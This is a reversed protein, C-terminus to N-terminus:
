SIKWFLTSYKTCCIIMLYNLNKIGPQLEHNLNIPRMHGKEIEGHMTYALIQCLLM